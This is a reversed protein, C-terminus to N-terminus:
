IKLGETRLRAVIELKEDDTLRGAYNVARETADYAMRADDDFGSRLYAEYADKMEQTAM